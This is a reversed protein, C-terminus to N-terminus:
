DRQFPDGAEEGKYLLHHYRKCRSEDGRNEGVEGMVHLSPGNCNICRRKSQAAYTTCVFHRSRSCDAEKYLSVLMVRGEFHGAMPLVFPGLHILQSRVESLKAILLDFCRQSQSLM